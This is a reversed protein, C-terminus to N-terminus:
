IIIENMMILELYRFDGIDRQTIYVWSITKNELAEQGVKCSQVDLKRYIRDMFTIRIKHLCRGSTTEHM